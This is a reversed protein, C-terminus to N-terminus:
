QFYPKKRGSSHYCFMNPTQIMEHAFILLAPFSPTPHFQYVTQIEDDMEIQTTGILRYNKLIKIIELAKEHSFGLNKELLRTTFSKDNKRKYLMICTDFVDKNSFDKFFSVYDVNKFYALETDRADPVLLFYPLRNAIGMRTFGNDMMISSYEQDERDIANEYEEISTLDLTEKPRKGFLAKEMDWCFNFVLKLRKEPETEYIKEMLAARLDTNNCADRGFLFDIPVEFYDAIRPLLDTDPVGGNEWKSVAQISVGVFNALDEQKVGREKRLSSIQKGIIEISM